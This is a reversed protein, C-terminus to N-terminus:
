QWKPEGIKEAAKAMLNAVIPRETPTISKLTHLFKPNARVFIELEGRNRKISEIATQIAKQQDSIITCQSEKLTFNEKFLNRTM